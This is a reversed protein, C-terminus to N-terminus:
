FLNIFLLILFILFSYFLFGNSLSGIAVGAAETGQKPSCSDFSQNDNDDANFGVEGLEKEMM